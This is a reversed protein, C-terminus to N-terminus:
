PNHKLAAVFVAVLAALLITEFTSELELTDEPTADLITELRSNSYTNSQIWVFLSFATGRSQSILQHDVFAVLAWLLTERFLDFGLGSVATKRANLALVVSLVLIFGM